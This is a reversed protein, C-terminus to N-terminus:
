KRIARIRESTTHPVPYDPYAQRFKRWQELLEDDNGAGLMAEIQDLWEAPGSLALNRRVSARAEAHNRTSLENQEMQPRAKSM